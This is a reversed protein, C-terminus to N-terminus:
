LHLLRLCSIRYWGILVRKGNEHEDDFVFREVHEHSQSNSFSGLDEFHDIPEPTNRYVVTEGIKPMEMHAPGRGGYFKGARYNEMLSCRMYPILPRPLYGCRQMIWFPEEHLFMRTWGGSYGNKGNTWEDVVRWHGEVYETRNDKPDAGGPWGECMARCFVSIAERVLPNSERGNRLM